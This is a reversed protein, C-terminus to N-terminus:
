GWAPMPRQPMPAFGGCPVVRGDPHACIRGAGPLLAASGHEAAMGAYVPVALLLALGQVLAPHRAIGPHGLRVVGGPAFHPRLRAFDAARQPLTALTVEEEGINFSRPTGHDHINLLSIRRAAPTGAAIRRLVAAVMQAVGTMIIEGRGAAPQAWAGWGVGGHRVAGVVTLAVYGGLHLEM